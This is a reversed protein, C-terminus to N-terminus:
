KKDCLFRGLRRATSLWSERKTADPVVVTPPKSPVIHWRGTDPDYVSKLPHRLLYNVMAEGWRVKTVEVREDIYTYPENM